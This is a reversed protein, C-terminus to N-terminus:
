NQVLARYASVACGARREIDRVAGLIRERDCTRTLVLTSEPGPAARVVGVDWTSLSAVADVPHPIRVFWGTRPATVSIAQPPENSSARRAHRDELVEIADDVLTAATVDPGAGPGSFLLDGRTPNRLLVANQVGDTRSLPHSNDVFAPGAFASCETNNWAAHVVPKLSGGFRRAAHLCEPHVTAIGTREVQSPLVISDSFHRVLVCLKEVADIGDVDSSPDPEAYGRRQAEALAVAFDAGGDSMRSLIFNTTGNVIGSIARISRAFPRRDFTGLFPVGALVAAEYRFPVEHRRAADLLEAGHAALLSKNATVIPIGREIADLILSRAPELGGLAEIVVAPNGHLAASADRTLAVHEAGPRVRSIDRVLGSSVRFRRALPDSRVLAAVAAGVHGVGLLAIKVPYEPSAQVRSNTRVADVVSSM